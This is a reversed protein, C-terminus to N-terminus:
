KEWQISAKGTLILVVEEENFRRLIEEEIDRLQSNSLEHLAQEVRQHRSPRNITKTKEDLSVVIATRKPNVVIQYPPLAGIHLATIIARYRERNIKWSTERALEM